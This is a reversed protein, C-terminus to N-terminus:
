RCSALRDEFVHQIHYCILDEESATLLVNIFNEFEGQRILTTFSLSAIGIMGRYALWQDWGPYECCFWLNKYYYGTGMPQDKDGLKAKLEELTACKSFMAPQINPNEDEPCWIYQSGEAAWFNLLKDYDIMTHEM